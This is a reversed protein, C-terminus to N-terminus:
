ARACPSRIASVTFRAWRTADFDAPIERQAQARRFLQEFLGCLIDLKETVQGTTRQDDPVREATAAVVFCGPPRNPDVSQDVILGFVAAVADTVSGTSNLCEHFKNGETLRYRDLALAYFDAKSGFTRYMSARSFGIQTLLDDLGLGAYGHRWFEIVARDLM